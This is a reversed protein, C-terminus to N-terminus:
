GYYNDMVDPALTKDDQFFSLFVKSPTLVLGGGQVNSTLHHSESRM